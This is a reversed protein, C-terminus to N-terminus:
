RQVARRRGPAEPIACTTRAQPAQRGDLNRHIPDLEYPEASLVLGLGASAVEDGIRHGIEGRRAIGDGTGSAFQGQTARHLVVGEAPEVCPRFQQPEQCPSVSPGPHRSGPLSPVNLSPRGMADM